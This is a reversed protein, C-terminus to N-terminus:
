LTIFSKMLYLAEYFSASLLVLDFCCKGLDGMRVPRCITYNRCRGAPPYGFRALRFRVGQFFAAQPNKGLHADLSGVQRLPDRYNSGHM